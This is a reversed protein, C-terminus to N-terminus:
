VGLTEFPDDEGEIPARMLRHLMAPRTKGNLRRAPQLDMGAPRSVEDREPLYIANDDGPPRPAAGEDALQDDDQGLVAVRRRRLTLPSSM